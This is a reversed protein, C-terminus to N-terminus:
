VEGFLDDSEVFCDLVGSELFRKRRELHAFADDVVTRPFRCFTKGVKSADLSKGTDSFTILCLWATIKITLDFLGPVNSIECLEGITYKSMLTSILHCIITLTLHRFLIPLLIKSINTIDFSVPPDNLTKIRMVIAERTLVIPITFIFVGTDPVVIHCPHVGEM